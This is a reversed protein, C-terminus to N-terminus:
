FFTLTTFVICKKFSIWVKFKLKSDMMNKLRIKKAVNETVCKMCLILINNIYIREKMRMSESLHM